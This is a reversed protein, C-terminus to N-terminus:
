KWSKSLDTPIKNLIKESYSFPEESDFRFDENLNVDKYKSNWEEVLEKAKEESDVVSFILGFYNHGDETVDGEIVYVKM